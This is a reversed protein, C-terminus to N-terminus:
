LPEGPLPDASGVSPGEVAGLGWAHGRPLSEPDLPDPQPEEGWAAGILGRM